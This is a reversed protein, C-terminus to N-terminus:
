FRWSITILFFFWWFVFWSFYTFFLLYTTSISPSSIEAWYITFITWSCNMKSFIHGGTISGCDFLGKSFKQAFLWWTLQFQRLDTKVSAGLKELIELSTLLIFESYLYHLQCMDALEERGTGCGVGGVGRGTEKNKEKNQIYMNLNCLPLNRLLSSVPPSFTNM